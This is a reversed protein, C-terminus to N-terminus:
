WEKDLFQVPISHSVVMAQRFCYTIETLTTKSKEDDFILVCPDSTSLNPEVTRSNWLNIVTEQMDVVCFILRDEKVIKTCVVYSDFILLGKLVQLEHYITLKLKVKGTEPLVGCPQITTWRCYFHHTM